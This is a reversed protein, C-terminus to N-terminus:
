PKEVPETAGLARERLHAARAVARRKVSEPTPDVRELEELYELLTV